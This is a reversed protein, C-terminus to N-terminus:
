QPSASYPLDEAPVPQTNATPGMDVQLEGGQLLDQYSIWTRSVVAGNLQRKQVYVNQDSNGAATIVLTRDQPLHLTTKNFL